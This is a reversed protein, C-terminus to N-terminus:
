LNYLLKCDIKIDAEFRKYHSFYLEKKVRRLFSAFGRSVICRVELFKQDLLFLRTGAAAPSGPLTYSVSIYPLYCM